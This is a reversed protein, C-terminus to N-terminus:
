KCDFEACTVIKSPLFAFSEMIDTNDHKAARLLGKNAPLENHLVVFSVNEFDAVTHCAACSLAAHGSRTSVKYRATCEGFCVPDRECNASPRGCVGAPSQLHLLQM